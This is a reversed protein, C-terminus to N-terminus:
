IMIKRRNNTIIYLRILLINVMQGGIMKFDYAAFPAMFVTVTDLIVAALVIAAVVSEGSHDVYM